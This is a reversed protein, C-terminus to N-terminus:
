DIQIEYITYAVGTGGMSYKQNLLGSNLVRGHQENSTGFDFYNRCRFEKNILYDYLATLYYNKRAKETTATYQSHAVLGTDFICVGAQIGENDSVTYLRINDPFKVALEVIEEYSHVPKSDHREKLCNDLIQWFEKYDRSEAFLLESKETKRLQQRKSMNFGMPFRMDITSSLNIEKVYGGHRFLAYLDEQSPVSSYIYPVPKYVVKKVGITRCYNLFEEWVDLMINADFHSKPIVWGGYTLGQHTWLTKDDINAPLLACLKGKRYAMISADFFRDSHYDMYNRNFLFTGNRSESVFRNWEDIDKHTYRKIEIM